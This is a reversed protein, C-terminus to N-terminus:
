RYIWSIWIDSKEPDNPKQLDLVRSSMGKIFEYSNRRLWTTELVNPFLQNGIIQYGGINNPHAVVPFHTALLQSLTKQKSGLEALDFISHFEIIIQRFKNLTKMPLSSLIKWEDEEIDIKLIYDTSPYTNLLKDLTISLNDDIIGLKKRHLSYNDNPARFDPVSDDVLVIKSVQNECDLDFSINDGVGISFLIDSDSLDNTIVYGGDKNDGKRIFEKQLPTYLDFISIIEESLIIKQPNLNEQNYYLKFIDQPLNDLRVKLNDLNIQINHIKADLTEHIEHIENILEYLDVSALLKNTFKAVWYRTLRDLM